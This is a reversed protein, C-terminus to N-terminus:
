FPDNIDVIASPEEILYPSDISTFIVITRHVFIASISVKLCHSWLTWWFGLGYMGGVATWISRQM